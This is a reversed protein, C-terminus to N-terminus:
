LAKQLSSSSEELGERHATAIKEYADALRNLQNRCVDSSFTSALTRCKEARRKWNDARSSGLPLEQETKALGRYTDAVKLLEKRDAPQEAREAILDFYNADSEFDANAM